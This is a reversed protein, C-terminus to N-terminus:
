DINRVDFVNTSVNETDPFVFMVLECLVSYINDAVYTLLHKVPTFESVKATNFSFITGWVVTVNSTASAAAM